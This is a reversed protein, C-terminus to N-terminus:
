MVKRFIRNHGCSGYAEFVESQNLESAVTSPGPHGAFAYKPPNFNSYLSADDLILLGGKKLAISALELDQKVVELDHSGDLYIM